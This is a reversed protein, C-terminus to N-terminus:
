RERDDASVEALLRKLDNVRDPRRQAMDNEEYPDALV